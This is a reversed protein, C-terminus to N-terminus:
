TFNTARSLRKSEKGRGPPKNFFTASHSSLRLLAPQLQPQTEAISEQPRVIQIASACRSSPLTENHTRIFLQSRKQFEFPRNARQKRRRLRGPTERTSGDRAAEGLCVGEQGKHEGTLTLVRAGEMSAKFVTAFDGNLM